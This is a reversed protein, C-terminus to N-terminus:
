HLEARLQEPTLVVDRMVQGRAGIAGINRGDIVAELGGANGTWLSLDRRAPLALQEGAQMTRTWRYSGDDSEVQVWAAETALLVIRRDGDGDIAAAGPNADAAPVLSLLTDSPLRARLDAAAAPRNAPLEALASVAGNPESMELQDLVAAQVIPLRDAPATLDSTFAVSTAADLGSAIRVGDASRATQGQQLALWSEDSTLAVLTTGAPAVDRSAESRPTSRSAVPEAAVATDVSREIPAVKAGSSDVLGSLYAGVEGPWSAADALQARDLVTVLHWAGYALTVLVLSAAIAFRGPWRSERLPTMVQIPPVAMGSAELRQRVEAVVEDADFGLYDAYSRLFGIAYPRGPMTGFDGEELALLYAPRIRLQDAVEYLDVGLAERTDRLYHGVARLRGNPDRSVSKELSV